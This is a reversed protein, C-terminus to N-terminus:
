YTIEKYQSEFFFYTLVCVYSLLNFFKLWAKKLTELFWCVYVNFPTNPSITIVYHSAFLVHVAM